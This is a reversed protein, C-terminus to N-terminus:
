AEMQEMQNIAETNQGTQNIAETNQGMHNIAEARKLINGGYCKEPLHGWLADANAGV